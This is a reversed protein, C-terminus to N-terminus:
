QDIGETYNLDVVSLHYSELARVYSLEADVRAREADLLRVLDLGGAQYAARSIESIEVAQDKLPQFTNLFQDRRMQYDRRALAAEALIQNRTAEYSAQVADTEARAASVAAQNRNFLPLDFQVGALPTDINETDRKYGGTFLLDPRGNAKELQVRAQAQAIAEQAIQGEIRLTAPDSGAPVPLPEEVRILDESLVWRDDPSANMERALDLQAKESDLQASAAAAQIQQGQLRVRLLDVEAIKGEHFRAEHYTIMEGSYHGDQEYLNALLQTAKAIWYARRVALTIERRTLQAGLRSQATEAKAVEIRGGRKGSVELLQSGEWYTQSNEGFASTQTRLDEKRFLFRPNPVAGAQRQLDSLATVKADAARLEPRHALAYNVAEPLSLQTQAKCVHAWLLIGALLTCSWFKSMLVQTLESFGNLAVSIFSLRWLAKLACFNAQFRACCM